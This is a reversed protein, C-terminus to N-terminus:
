AGGAKVAPAPPAPPRFLPAPPLCSPSAPASQHASKWARMPELTLNHRETSTHAQRMPYICGGVGDWGRRSKRCVCWGVLVASAISSAERTRLSRSPHSAWRFCRRNASCDVSFRTICALSKLITIHICYLSLRLRTTPQHSPICSASRNPKKRAKHKDPSLLSLTIPEQQLIIGSVPHNPRNNHINTHCSAVSLRWDM